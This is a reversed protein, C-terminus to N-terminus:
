LGHIFQILMFARWKQEFIKGNTDKQFNVYGLLNKLNKNVEFETNLEQLEWKKLAKM